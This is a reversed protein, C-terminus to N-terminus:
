AIRVGSKFLNRILNGIVSNPINNNKANTINYVDGEIYGSNSLNLSTYLNCPYGNYKVFNDLLEETFGRPMEISVEGGKTILSKYAYDFGYATQYNQSIASKIRNENNRFNKNLDEIQMRRDMENTIFGMATQAVGAGGSIAGTLLANSVSNIAGMTAQENVNEINIALAERDYEASRNLYEQFANGAWPLKGESSIIFQDNVRIITYIGTIDSYYDLLISLDYTNTSANYKFWDTPLEYIKEGVTNKIIVSGCLMESQTLSITLPYPNLNPASRVLPTAVYNHAGENGVPILSINELNQDIFDIIKNKGSTTINIKYPSFPAISFDALQDATIGVAYKLNDVITSLNPYNGSRNIIRTETEDIPLGYLNYLFFGSYLTFGLDTTKITMQFYLPMINSSFDSYPLIPFKINRSVFNTDEQPAIKVKTNTLVNSKTFWGTLTTNSNLYTTIPELQLQLLVSKQNYTTYDFNIIDYFMGDIYAMNSQYIYDVYNWPIIVSTNFNRGYKVNPIEVVKNNNININMVVQNLTFIRNPVKLLTLNGIM